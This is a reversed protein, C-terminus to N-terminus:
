SGEEGGEPSSGSDWGWDFSDDDSDYRFSHDEGDWCSYDGDDIKWLYQQGLVGQRIKYAPTDGWIDQIEPDAGCRVLLSVMWEMDPGPKRNAAWALPTVGNSDEANIIVEPQKLLDEMAEQKDFTETAYHLVTLDFMTRSLDFGADIFVWLSEPDVGPLRYCAARHAPILGHKDQIDM